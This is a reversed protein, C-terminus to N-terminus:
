DTEGGGVIGLLREWTGGVELPHNNAEGVETANDSVIGISEGVDTAYESVSGIGEGVETAKDSVNGVGESVGWSIVLRGGAPTATAYWVCSNM